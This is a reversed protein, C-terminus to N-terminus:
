RSVFPEPQWRCTRLAIRAASAMASVEADRVAIEAQVAELAANLVDLWNRRGVVFQRQFSDTVARASEAATRSTAIRDRAARNEAFDAALATQLELDVAGVRTEAAQERLRAAREAEFQSLGGNTSASFALGVREGTVENSSFQASLRPLLDARALRRDARAVLAEAQLRRRTPSCTTAAEIAGAESPHHLAPDYRPSAEPAFAPDALLVRLQELNAGAQARATVQQEILQNTRSRALELDVAPSVEQAVRREISGVLNRHEELGTDLARVRELARVLEFYGNTVRESIDQGTEDTVAESQRQAARARDITGGIRGGQWIPQDVTLNATLRDDRVIASGGEFAFAQVSVSPGYLWRASRVDTAAARNSIRAARMSPNANVAKTAAAALEPPIMPPAPDGAPAATPAPDAAPGYTQAALASAAGALALAAARGVRICPFSM